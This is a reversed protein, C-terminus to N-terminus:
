KQPKVIYEALPLELQKIRKLVLEAMYRAGLENFHTDDVKGEPYNPHQGKELHNFLLKSKDEGFEQLLKMSDESLDILPVKLMEATKRTLEAYEKHTDIVKGQEDFKRRAASTILVPIAQKAKTEQVFRMLNATFEEPTAAVKKTPVEDNHGFQIFVYDGPKLVELVSEWRKEAIFSKTSRGNKARNDIKVQNNFFYSFPMGWGAEPYAKIEKEAVTSDGILYVTVEKKQTFAMATIILVTVAIFLTYTQRKKLNMM